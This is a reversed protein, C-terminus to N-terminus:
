FNAGDIVLNSEPADRWKGDAYRLLDGPQPSDIQVDALSALTNSSAPGQPGVGGIVNVSVASAAVSASVATGSVTATIPNSTVNATTM